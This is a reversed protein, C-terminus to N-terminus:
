RLVSRGHRTWAVAARHLTCEVDFRLCRVAVVAEGVQFKVEADIDELAIALVLGLLNLDLADEGIRLPVVRTSKSQLSCRRHSPQRPLPPPCSPVSCGEVEVVVGVEGDAHEAAVLHHEVEVAGIVLRNGFRYMRPDTSRCNGRRAPHLEACGAGRVMGTSCSINIYWITLPASLAVCRNVALFILAMSSLVLVWPVVDQGWGAPCRLASTSGLGWAGVGAVVAAAAGGLRSRSCRSCRGIVVEAAAGVFTFGRGARVIQNTRIALRATSNEPLRHPEPASLSLLKASAIFAFVCRGKRSWGPPAAKHSFNLGSLHHGARQLPKTGM